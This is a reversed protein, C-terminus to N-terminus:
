IFNKKSIDSTTLTEHSDTTSENALIPKEYFMAVALRSNPSNKQVPLHKAGAVSVAASRKNHAKNYEENIAANQLM